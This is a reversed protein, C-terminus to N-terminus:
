MGVKLPSASCDGGGLGANPFAQPKPQPEEPLVMHKTKVVFMYDVFRVPNIQEKAMYNLVRDVHNKRKYRKLEGAMAHELSAKELAEKNEPCHFLEVAKELATPGQVPLVMGVNNARRGIKKLNIHIGKTYWGKAPEKNMLMIAHYHYGETAKDRERVIYYTDSVKRCHDNVKGIAVHKKPDRYTLFRVDKQFGQFVEM